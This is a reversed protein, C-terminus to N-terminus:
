EREELWHGALIAFDRWDVLGSHNLDGASYRRLFPYTQSEGIDWVEVFDWGASFFTTEKQMEITPKGIVGSPYTGEGVGNLGPNVTSDWFCQTYSTTGEDECGILGGPEDGSVYGAAYSNLITGRNAGILGGPYWSGSVSGTAYCNSITCGSYVYGVLGGAYPNVGLVNGTAYCNLIDGENYGILGGVGPVELIRSGGTVNGAAFCNSVLGWGEGTLGGVWDEGSVLLVTYCDEIDGSRSSGVLGGIKHHGSVSGGVASCNTVKGNNKGVLSGVTYGDGADVNADALHLNKIQASAGTVYGFLGIYNTGTSRYTFNSTTFGNGDFVGTFPNSPYDGIINFETGTYDALNIDNVMVFCKNYDEIHNAIDTLDAPTAIRYPDNPEGTGGSYKGFSISGTVLVILVLTFRFNKM